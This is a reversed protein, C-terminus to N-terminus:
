EEDWFQNYAEFGRIWYKYMDLYKSNVTDDPLPELEDLSDAYEDGETVIQAIVENEDSSKESDIGIVEM